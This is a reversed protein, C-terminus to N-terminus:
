VRLVVEKMIGIMVELLHMAFIYLTLAFLSLMLATFFTLLINKVSEKFSYNHIEQILTFLRYAISAKLIFFIFHYIFAENLTLVNSTLYILLGWYIYPSLALAGAHYIDQLRGEGDHITSVLYNSLIILLIPLATQIFMQLLSANKAQTQFLFGKLSPSFAFLLFALIYYLTSQYRNVIDFYRVQYYAERPNVLSMKLPAFFQAVQTKQWRKRLKNQYDIAKKYFTTKKWIFRLIILSLIFMLGIGLYNQFFDNRIEWFANSYGSQDNALAFSQLAKKYDGKQFSAKAIAQHPLRYATNQRQVERWKDEGEQYRGDQYFISAQYLNHAYETAGYVQIEGSAGDLIHINQNQDVTIAKAEELQGKLGQYEFPSHMFFFMHGNPDLVYLASNRFLVYTNGLQGVDVDVFDYQKFPDPSQANLNIGAANFKKLGNDKLNQTVTYVLGQQDITLSSPTAPINKFFKQKQEETFFRDKLWTFFGTQATNSAFYGIFKGEENFRILGGGNGKSLVYLVGQQNVRVKTPMFKENVGYLPDDPKEITKLLRHDKKDVLFVAQAKEDAVYITKNDVFIGQPSQFEPIHIKVTERTESNIKLIWPAEESSIYYDNAEEDFFFDNTKNVQTSISELPEYAAQTEVVDGNIAETFTKYPLQDQSFVTTTMFLFLCSILILKKM